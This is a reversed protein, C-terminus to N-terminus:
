VVLIKKGEALLHECEERVARLATDLQDETEIGGSFHQALSVKALRNGDLIRMMEEIAQQLRSECALCDARVEPITPRLKPEEEARHDIPSIIRSRQADELLEWGQTEILRQKALRYLAARKGLAECYRREYEQRLRHALQDITPIEEYFRERSLLEKLSCADVSLSEALDEEKELLSWQAGLVENARRLILINPETLANKLQTSRSIAEKIQAHASLFTQIASSQKGTRIAVMQGRAQELVESGSLSNQVLLNTMEQVADDNKLVAERIHTAASAPELEPLEKGFAEQFAVSAHVLDEPRVDDVKPRFAAQRFFNNNKFTNQAEISQATEITIGKSVMEIKGARLLCAVFLRVAEFEWGFPEEAFHDALYKGTASEGYSSRNQITNFLECLPGADLRFTTHGNKDQLLLLSSFVQPLGNLNQATLVAQIDSDAVKHAAESFRHFVEPVASKLLKGAFSGIETDQDTASRDNGRYYVSGALLAEKLLRRLEDERTAMRKKEEAVLRAEPGTAAGPERRALIERSRFIETMQSEIAKSLCAIWFITKPESQSRQRVEPVRKQFDAESEALFLNVPVDGEEQERDHLFLGARFTKTNLYQFVPQPKWFKGITDAYIRNVDGSRPQLGARQREWDDEAPTPIRYGDDGHRIQHAKELAELAERVATLQSEADLRPHLVAAINEATRHVNKVFQLLCIAKAVSQALPHNVATAINSIKQRIESEINGAVLDYMQDIRVLQGVEQAALGVSPNILLQQALKIITRNAGGVNRLTGGQSRLGSVVDIMLGIQYPLMPYLDVFGLPSLLALQVDATLRTHTELAGRNQEYAARLIPEAASNKALVRKSAVEKIDSPELHVEISFRDRMRSFEVRGGKFDDIKADLREQSTAILWMKGRGVKGLSEVVSQLDLMKQDDRAVFQGVEDIVFVLTKGPRRRQMLEKTREALTRPTVDARGRASRLWLDPSTFAKPEILHMVHSAYGLSLAFMNKNDAWRKGSLDEYTSEFEALRGEGELTIELEALDLDRSYGLSELFMRYMIETLRQNPSLIGRETAVDFIVAHTPILENIGALLAQIKKSKTREGIRKGAPEGQVLRNDLALGLLKAFSSKGSGFFGSVWVGVGEHPKNPTEKYIDLIQEFWRCISDTAIYESIEDALIQEDTQDVKIVEEIRRHINQAFLSEIKDPM